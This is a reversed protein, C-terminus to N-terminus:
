WTADRGPRGVRHVAFTQLRNRQRAIGSPPTCWRRSTAARTTRCSARRRCSPSCCRRASAPSTATVSSASAAPSSGSGVGDRESYQQGLFRVVAQAVTLRSRRHQDGARRAPGTLRRRSAAAASRATQSSGLDRRVWRTTRPRRQDALGAGAGPGAMVNLYYMDHGPPAMARATGATRSWCWTATACRRWCTSRGTPPATSGSTALRIARAARHAPQAAAARLLLDGGARDGRGAPGRRAQAAPVVVLQRGPHHVECAILPGGGAGRAHRLQQVQAICQGAGRLEVPVESPRHDPFPCAAPERGRAPLRSGPWRRAACPRAAVSGATPSTPPAPSSAPAAPSRSADRGGVSSRAPRRVAAARCRATAPTSRVPRRGAGADRRVPRLLELGARRPSRSRRVRGARQQGPPAAGLRQM